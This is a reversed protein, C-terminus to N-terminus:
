SIFTLGVISVNVSRKINISSTVFFNLYLLNIGGFRKKCMPYTPKYFFHITFMHFYFIPEM